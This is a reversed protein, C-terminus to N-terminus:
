VSTHALLKLYTPFPCTQSARFLYLWVNRQFLQSLTRLFAPWAAHFFMSSSVRSSSVPALVGKRDLKVELQQGEDPRQPLKGTRLRTFISPQAKAVFNQWYHLKNDALIYDVHRQFSPGRLEAQPNDYLCMLKRFIKLSGFTGAIGHHLEVKVYGPGNPINRFTLRHSCHLRKGM